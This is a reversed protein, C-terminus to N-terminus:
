EYVNASLLSALTQNSNAGYAVGAVAIAQELNSGTATFNQWAPLKYRIGLKSTLLLTSLFKAASYVILHAAVRFVSVLQHIVQHGQSAFHAPITFLLGILSWTQGNSFWSGCCISACEANIHCVLCCMGNATPAQLYASQSTDQAPIECSQAGGIM